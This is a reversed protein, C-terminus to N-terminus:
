NTMSSAYCYIKGKLKHKGRRMASIHQVSISASNKIVALSSYPLHALQFHFTLAGRRRGKMNWFHLYIYDLKRTCQTPTYFYCIYVLGSTYFNLYLNFYIIISWSPSFLPSLSAHSYFSSLMLCLLTTIKQKWLCNISYM